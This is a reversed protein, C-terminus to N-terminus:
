SESNLRQDLALFKEILQQELDGLLSVSSIRSIAKRFKSGALARKLNILESRAEKTSAGEILKFLSRELGSRAASVEEELKVLNQHLVALESSGYKEFEGMSLTSIRGLSFRALMSM